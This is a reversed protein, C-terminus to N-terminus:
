YSTPLGQSERSRVPGLGYPNCVYHSFHEGQLRLKIHTRLRMADRAMRDLVANILIKTEM